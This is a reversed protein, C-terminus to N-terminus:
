YPRLCSAPESREGPKWHSARGAGPCGPHRSTAPSAGSKWKILSFRGQLRRYNHCSSLDLKGGQWCVQLVEASLQKPDVGFGQSGLSTGLRGWQAPLTCTYYCTHCYKWFKMSGRLKLRQLLKEQSDSVDSGTLM